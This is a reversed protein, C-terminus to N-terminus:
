WTEWAAEIAPWCCVPWGLCCGRTGPPRGADDASCRWLLPLRKAPQPRADCRLEVSVAVCRCIRALGLPTTLAGRARHAARGGTSCGRATRERGRPRRAQLATGTCRSPRHEALTPFADRQLEDLVGSIVFECEHLPLVFRTGPPQPPPPAGGSPPGPAPKRPAAKAGLGLQDQV